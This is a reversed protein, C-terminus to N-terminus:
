RRPSRKMVREAARREEGGKKLAAEVAASSLLGEQKGALAADVLCGICPVSKKSPLKRRTQWHGCTLVLVLVIGGRPGLLDIVRTVEREPPDGILTERM